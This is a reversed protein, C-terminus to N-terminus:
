QSQGDWSGVHMSATHRKIKQDLPLSLDRATSLSYNLKTQDDMSQWVAREWDEGEALVTEAMYELIHLRLPATYRCNRIMHVAGQDEPMGRALQVGCPCELMSERTDGDLTTWGRTVRSISGKTGQVVGMKIRRLTTVDKSAVQLEQWRRSEGRGGMAKTNTAEIYVQNSQRGGQESTAERM